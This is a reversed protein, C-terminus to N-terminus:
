PRWERLQQNDIRYLQDGRSLFVNGANKGHAVTIKQYMGNDANLTIINGVLSVDLKYQNAWRNVEDADSTSLVYVDVMVGISSRALDILKNLDETCNDCHKPDAFFLLRDGLQFVSQVPTPSAAPSYAYEPHKRYYPELLRDDILSTDPYLRQFAQRYAREFEIARLALEYEQQALLEAYRRQEVLTEAFMGLAFVPDIDKNWHGLPGNIIDLYRSYEPESLRWRAALEKIPISSRTEGTVHPTVTKKSDYYDEAFVQAQWGILLMLVFNLGRKRM